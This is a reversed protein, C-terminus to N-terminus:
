KKGNELEEVRKTIRKDLDKKQSANFLKNTKLEEAYQTLGDINRTSAIVKCASAYALAPDEVQKAKNGNGEKKIKARRESEADGGIAMQFTKALYYKNAMTLAKALGKDGQQTGNMDIGAGEAYSTHTESTKSLNVLTYKVRVKTIGSELESSSEVSELLLLGATKLLPKVEAICDKEYAFTYEHEDGLGGLKVVSGVNQQVYAIKQWISGTKRPTTKKM